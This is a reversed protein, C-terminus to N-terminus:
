TVKEAPGGCCACQRRTCEATAEELAKLDAKIGDVLEGYEKADTLPNTYSLTEIAANIHAAHMEIDLCLARCTSALTTGPEHPRGGMPRLAGGPLAVQENSLVTDSARASGSYVAGGTLVM